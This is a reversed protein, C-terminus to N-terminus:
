LSLPGCKAYPMIQSDSKGDKNTLTVKIGISMPVIEAELNYEKKLYEVDVERLQRGLLKMGMDFIVKKYELSKVDALQNIM